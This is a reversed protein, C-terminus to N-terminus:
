CIEEDSIDQDTIEENKNKKQCMEVAKSWARTCCNELLFQSHSCKFTVLTNHVLAPTFPFTQACVCVCVCV